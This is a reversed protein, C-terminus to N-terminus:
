GQLLKHQYYCTNLQIPKCEFCYARKDEECYNCALKVIKQQQCKACNDLYDEDGTIYM